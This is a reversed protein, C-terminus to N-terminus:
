QEVFPQQLWELFHKKCEPEPANNRHCWDLNTCCIVCSNNHVKDLFDALQEDNMTRLNDANTAAEVEDERLYWMLGDYLSIAGYCEDDLDGDGIQVITVVDGNEFNGGSYVNKVRVNAGVRFKM